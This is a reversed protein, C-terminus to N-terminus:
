GHHPPRNEHYWRDGDNSSEQDLEDKTVSPLVDGFVADLKKLEKLSLKSHNKKASDSEASELESSKAKAPETIDSM